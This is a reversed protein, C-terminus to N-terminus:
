EELKKVDNRIINVFEKNVNVTFGLRRFREFINNFVDPFSEQGHVELVYIKVRSLTEDSSGNLVEREGGEIDMKLVDIEDSRTINIINELNLVAVYTVKKSSGPNNIAILSASGTNFYDQSVLRLGPEVAVGIEFIKVRDVLRNSTVNLQLINFNDNMVEWSWIKAEPNDKAAKITFTGIHAGIDIITLPKIYEKYVDYIKAGYVENIILEDFTGIRFFLNFGEYEM